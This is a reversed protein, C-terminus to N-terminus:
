RGPFPDPRDGPSPSSPRMASTVCAAEALPDRSCGGGPVRRTAAWRGIRCRSRTSEAAQGCRRPGASVSAKARANASRLLRTGATSASVPSGETRARRTVLTACLAPVSDANSRTRARATPVHGDNTGELEPLQDAIDHRRTHPDTATWRHCGGPMPVRGGQGRGDVWGAVWGTSWKDGADAGPDRVGAPLIGSSGSGLLSRRERSVSSSRGGAWWPSTISRSVV